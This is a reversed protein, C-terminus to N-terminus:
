EGKKDRLPTDRFRQIAEKVETETPPEIKEQALKEQLEKDKIQSEQYHLYASLKQLIWKVSEYLHGDRDNTYDMFFPRFWELIEMRMQLRGEKIGAQYIPWDRDKVSRPKRM